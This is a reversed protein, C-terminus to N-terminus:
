GAPPLAQIPGKADHLAKPRTPTPWGTPSRAGGSATLAALDLYAPPATAGRGARRAADGTGRPGLRRGRHRRGARGPAPARRALRRRRRRHSARRRRRLRAEAEDAESTSPRSCASACCGSSWATSSRQAGGRPGVVPARPRRGVAAPRPREVLKNLRRNRLVGDLHERLSDGAKGKIKDIHAVVGALDGYQHDVQRGDEPGVGPCAPCTTPPRASWPPSTATASPHCSTSGEIVRRPGDALGRVGRAGPLPHDRQRHGAPLRRPRRHLHGGRHGARGGATALTAIIDDAEFGEVELHKIRLADLVESCCHCRAPSSPRPHRLPRGQVRRVRRGPVDQAVRRLGGRRPDAAEDRLMNILMSTFGYVANTHQGTSTSFNEVPLAFFARYALSHGDLLLLKM